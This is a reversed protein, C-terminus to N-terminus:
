ISHLKSDELTKITSFVTYPGAGVTVCTVTWQYIYNPHLSSIELSTTTGPSIRVFVRSTNVETINIRYEIIVGNQHEVPPPNWSCFITRSNRVVATPNQPAM